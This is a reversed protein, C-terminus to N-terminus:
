EIVIMHDTVKDQMSFRLLYIGTPQDGLDMRIRNTGSLVETLTSSIRKGTYDFVEITLSGNASASYDAWFAGESPNPYVSLGDNLAAEEMGIQSQESIRINDLYANDMTFMITDASLNRTEFTLTFKTGAYASLDLFRPEYPDTNASVPNYTGGIQHTGNVLVRFNSAVTYDGAGIVMEYAQKGYTQKLDFAVNATTWATADICFDVRASLFDNIMWTNWSNPFEIMDMYAMPNGGTMLFGKAGNHAAKLSVLAHSYPTTHVLFNNTTNAEDFTIITDGLSVPKKVSYGTFADNATLTDEVFATWVSLNYNGAASLDAPVSFSFPVDVGPYLDSAVTMSDIVAPGGNLSYGLKVVKGAPLFECGFFQWKAEVTEADSLDCSSVPGTIATVGVDINQYLKNEFTYGTLEDNYALTDNAYSVAIDLTHNGLVSVDVPNSFTFYITDGAQAASDLVLTDYVNSGGDLSYSLFLTDGAPVDVSCGNYLLSVSVTESTLGCGTVPSLVQYASFDNDAVAMGVGVAYWANACQIYAESCMGYLDIAAQLTAMRCDAYQSSNTMYVSLARYAISAATDIGLGNVTYFDGNDNTGSGGVSLLYFWFNAVGSNTHVGGNDIDGTYWNTGLYTDPQSDATPNSMDRFGNGSLDFDEGITWDGAGDLAFFEIATGFIDAFSENLAGPEDQYVLNATYEIVGHSIEHGCVDLATFPSYSSGGDGYTMRSGDWFANDYDVDYHVYSILKAGAGDYSNRGHKQLYYDYTMEAGWHADTAVEDQQANVNNWDNDTDTFDVAAGYDTGTQMNYTEIGLGRGTEVLRYSGAALSDTVINQTGSYKTHAVGDVDGTRLRSATYIVDGSLADIYVDQYSLPREAYVNVKWVLRYNAAIGSYHRDFIVLEAQPYYSADQKGTANKLMKECAPNEWMYKQAGTFGIARTIAADASVSPTYACQLGTILRGNATTALGGSTHVVYQGGSVPIGHYLQQYRTHTMGLADTSRRTEQMEDASGLNFAQKQTTFVEAETVQAGPKFQIWGQDNQIIAIRNLAPNNKQLFQANATLMLVEFLCFLIFFKKMHM